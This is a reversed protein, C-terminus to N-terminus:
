CSQLKNTNYRRVRFWMCNIVNLLPASKGNVVIEMEIKKRNFM